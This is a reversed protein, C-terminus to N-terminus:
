YQFNNKQFILEKNKIEKINKDLDFNDFDEMQDYRKYITLVQDFTEFKNM